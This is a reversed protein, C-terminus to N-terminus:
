ERGGFHEILFNFCDDVEEKIDKKLEKLDDILGDIYINIEKVLDTKNMKLYEISKKQEIWKTKNNLQNNERIEKTTKIKM